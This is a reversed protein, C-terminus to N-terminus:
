EYKMKWLSHYLKNGLIRQIIFKVDQKLKMSKWLSPDLSVIKEFLEKTCDRKIPIRGLSFLSTEADNPHYVSTCLTEYGAKQAATIIRKNGRGGPLSLSTVPKQIIEELQKKSEELEYFLKEDPLNSLFVHNVTHSGIEMGKEALARIQDQTFGLVSNIMSTTVYFTAKFDYKKLEPFCYEYNNSYGDDFTLCVNNKTQKELIKSHTVFDRVAIVNYNQEHLFAMQEYFMEKTITYPDGEPLINHYMLFPIATSIM